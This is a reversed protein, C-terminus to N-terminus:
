RGEEGTHQSADVIVVKADSLAEDLDAYQVPDRSLRDMRAVICYGVPRARVHELLRRLGPRDLTRGSYDLDTFEQSVTLGLREAAATIAARQWEVSRVQDEVSSSAVRIYSVIPLDGTESPQSHDTPSM